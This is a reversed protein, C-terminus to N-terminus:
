LVAASVKNLSFFHASNSARKSREMASGLTKDSPMEDNSTYVVPTLVAVNSM